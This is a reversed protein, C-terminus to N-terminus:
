DRPPPLDDPLCFRADGDRGDVCKGAATEGGSLTVTCAAAQTKERCAAFAEPPPGRHPPRAPRCFLAGQADAACTGAMTRDPLKVACVEDASSGDCATYAEPPPAPPEGRPGAALAALPATLLLVAALKTSTM